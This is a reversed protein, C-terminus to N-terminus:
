IGLRKFYSKHSFCVSKLSMWRDTQWLRQKASNHVILIQILDKRHILHNLEFVLQLSECVFQVSRSWHNLPKECFVVVETFKYRTCLDYLYKVSNKTIQAKSAYFDENMRTMTIALLLEALAIKLCCRWNHDVSSFDHWLSSYIIVM